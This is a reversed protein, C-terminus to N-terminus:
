TEESLHKNHVNRIIDFVEMYLGDQDFYGGANPLTHTDKMYFFAEVWFTWRRIKNYEESNVPFGYGGL